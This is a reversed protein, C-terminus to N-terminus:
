APSTPAPFRSPSSPSPSRPLASFHMQEILWHGHTASWTAMLEFSDFQSLTVALAFLLLHQLPFEVKGAQRPDEIRNIQELSQSM